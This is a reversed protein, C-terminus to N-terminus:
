CSSEGKQKLIADVPRVPVPRGDEHGVPQGTLVDVRQSFVEVVGVVNHDEVLESLRLTHACGSLPAKCTHTGTQKRGESRDHLGLRTETVM